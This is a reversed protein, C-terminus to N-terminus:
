LTGTIKKGIGHSYDINFERSPAYALAIEPFKKCVNYLSVASTKPGLSSMVINYNDLYKIVENEIDAQGHDKSYADLRFSKINFQGKLLSQHARINRRNSEFQRGSQIGLLVFKPEFFNILQLTRDPDFGTILILGIPRGLQAIGSHKFLLRPNEPDRSLWEGNYQEPRYYIYHINAEAKELFYFISWISERPMTSIDVLVNRSTLNPGSLENEYIRWTDAPSKTVIETFKLNIKNKKCLQTVKIRNDATRKAYEKYYYMYVNATSNSQLNKEFGLYFRDEWSAFTIIADLISM